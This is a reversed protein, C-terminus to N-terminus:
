SGFNGHGHDTDTDGDATGQVLLVEIFPRRPIGAFVVLLLPGAAM